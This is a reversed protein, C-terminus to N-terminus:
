SIPISRTRVVLFYNVSTQSGEHKGEGLRPNQIFMCTSVGWSKLRIMKEAVALGCGPLKLGWCWKLDGATWATGIAGM